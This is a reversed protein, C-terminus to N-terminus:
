SEDATNVFYGKVFGQTNAAVAAASVDGKVIVFGYYLCTTDGPDVADNADLDITLGGHDAAVFTTTSCKVWYMQRAQAPIYAIKVDGDSGGSNDSDTAAVGRFTAAFATGVNTIYGTGDSFVADGKAIEVAAQEAYVLGLNSIPSAPCFGKTSYKM